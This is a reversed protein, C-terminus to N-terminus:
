FVKGKKYERVANESNIAHVFLRYANLADNSAVHYTWGEHIATIGFGIDKKRINCLFRDSRNLIAGEEKIIAGQRLAQRRWRMAIKKRM